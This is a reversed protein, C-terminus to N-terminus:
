GLNDGESANPNSCPTKIGNVKRVHYDPYNGQQIERVFQPRTMEVGRNPDLFRHNRGSESEDTVKVPKM